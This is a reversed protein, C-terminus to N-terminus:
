VNTKILILLVTNVYTTLNDQRAALYNACLLAYSVLPFYTSFSDEIIHAKVVLMTMYLLQNSIGPGWM